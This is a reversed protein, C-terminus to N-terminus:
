VRAPLVGTALESHSYLCLKNKGLAKARYLASDAHALLGESDIRGDPYIAVGISCTVSVSQGEIEIAGQMSHILKEGCKEAHESHHLEPVIVVFEDGGLRIVSDSARLSNQLRSAITVLVADGAAHGYTDNVQKFGDLDIVFVAALTGYRRAHEVAQRLRDQLMSRNLVSTLPDHQAIHLTSEENRKRETIDSATIAVGDRVKVAQIRLWTGSRREDDVAVECVMSVGTLVVQRYREYTGTTVCVPLVECMKMGLMSSRPLGVVKEVNSNLYTFIFDEIEDKDNRYASCIYLADMSSEAAALFRDREEELLEHVLCLQEHVRRDLLTIVLAGLLVIGITFALSAQGISSIQVTNEMSYPMSSSEFRVAAMATYHMAAIGLGMLLAGAVRLWERPRSATRISFAIWLAAWSFGVAVLVSLVVLGSQYQHMASCRMAHMGVYHMGGIGAGMLLSGRFGEIARLRKGSVVVLAIGSASIALLLSILVTPVHYVVEISLHESLMGLYHMSWIGFGMALAGSTLWSWYARGRSKAMREAFGFAAYCAMISTLVSLAVLWYITTTHIGQMM